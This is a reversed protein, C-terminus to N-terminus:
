YRRVSDGGLYGLTTMVFLILGTDAVALVGLNIWYGLASNRVNLTLAVIIATLGFFLLNWSDQFVRGRVMGPAM